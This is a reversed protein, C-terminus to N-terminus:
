GVSEGLCCLGIIFKRATYLGRSFGHSPMLMIVKIRVEWTEVMNCFCSCVKVFLFFSLLLAISAAALWMISWQAKSLQKDIDSISISLLGYWRLQLQASCLGFSERGAAHKRCPFTANELFPDHLSQEMFRLEGLIEDCDRKKDTWRWTVVFLFIFRQEYFCHFNHM